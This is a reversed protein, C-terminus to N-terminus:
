YGTELYEKYTKDNRVSGFPFQFILKGNVGSNYLTSVKSCFTDKPVIFCNLSSVRYTM